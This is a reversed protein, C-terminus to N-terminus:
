LKCIEIEEYRKALDKPSLISEVVRFASGMTEQVSKSPNTAVEKNFQELLAFFNGRPEAGWKSTVAHPAIQLLKVSVRVPQPTEAATSNPVPNLDRRLTDLSQVYNVVAQAHYNNVDKPAEILAETLKSLPDQVFTLNNNIVVELNEMAGLDPLGTEDVRGSAQTLAYAIDSPSKLLMPDVMPRMDAAVGKVDRASRNTGSSAELTPDVVARTDAKLTPDVVARTDAKLTPDVVARMDAKLTPDIALGRLDAAELSNTPNVPTPNANLEGRPSTAAPALNPNIAKGRRPVPPKYVPAAFSSSFSLSILGTTFLTSLLISSQLFCLLQKM